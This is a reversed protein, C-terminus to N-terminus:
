VKIKFTTLRVHSLLLVDITLRNLFFFSVYIISVFPDSWSMCLETTELCDCAKPTIVTESIVDNDHHLDSNQHESKRIPFAM